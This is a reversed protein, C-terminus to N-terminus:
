DFRYTFTGPIDRDTNNYFAASKFAFIVAEDIEANGSSSSLRIDRIEPDAGVPAKSVVFRLTIPGLRNDLKYEARQIDYGAGALLDWMQPRNSLEVRLKLRYLGNELQYYREFLPSQIADGVFRSLQKPPPM